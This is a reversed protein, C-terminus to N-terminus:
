FLKHQQILGRYGKLTKVIGMAYVTVRSWCAPRNKSNIASMLLWPIIRIIFFLETLICSLIYAAKSNHKKIFYLISGRLQLTMPGANMKTSAGGLHIIEADPFFINKWGAKKFRYCWDTEEGYVFYNEDLVGIKEIAVKRVLMFCGTVTDVERIDKRNWWTM